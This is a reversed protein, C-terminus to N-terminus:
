WVGTYVAVRVSCLCSFLLGSSDRSHKFRVRQLRETHLHIEDAKLYKCIHQQPRFTTPEIGSPTVAMKISM